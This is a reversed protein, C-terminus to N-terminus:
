QNEWVDDGDRVETPMRELSVAALMWGPPSGVDDIESELDIFEREDPELATRQSVSPASRGGGTRWLDVLQGAVDDGDVPAVATVLPDSGSFRLGAVVLVVAAVSGALALLMRSSAVRDTGNRRVQPMGAVSGPVAAGGTAAAALPKVEPLGCVQALGCLLRSAEAVALCATEDSELRLEWEAAEPDSMEQLVYRTAQWFLLDGAAADESGPSFSTQDM